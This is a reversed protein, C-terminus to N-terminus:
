FLCSLGTDLDGSGTDADVREEESSEDDDDTPLFEEEDTLLSKAHGKRRKQAFVARRAAMMAARVSYESQLESLGRVGISEYASLFWKCSLFTILPKRRYSPLAFHAGTCGVMTWLWARVGDILGGEVQLGRSPNGVYLQDYGFQRAFRCPLYPEIHCRNKVRLVLYGVRINVLWRFCGVDLVTRDSRPKEEDILTDGYRGSFHPFCKFFEWSKRVRLERQVDSFKNGLWRSKELLQMFPVPVDVVSPASM